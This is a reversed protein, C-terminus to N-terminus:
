YEVVFIKNLFNDFVYYVEVVGKEVCLILGVLFNWWVEDLIWM